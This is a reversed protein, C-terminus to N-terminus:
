INKYTVVKPDHLQKITDVNRELYDNVLVKFKEMSGKCQIFNEIQNFMLETNGILLDHWDIRIHQSGQYGCNNHKFYPADPIDRGVKSQSLFRFLKSQMQETTIEIIPVNPIHQQIFELTFKKPHVLGIHITNNPYNEDLYFNVANIVKTINIPRDIDSTLTRDFLDFYKCRTVNEWHQSTKTIDPFSETLAHAIFEGSTGTTYMLLIAPLKNLADVSTIM